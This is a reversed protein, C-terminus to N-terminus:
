RRVKLSSKIFLKAYREKDNQKAGPFLGAAMLFRLGSTAEDFVKRLIDVPRVTFFTPSDSVAADIRGLLNDAVPEDNVIVRQKETERDFRELAARANQSTAAERRVEDIGNRDFSAAYNRLTKYFFEESM